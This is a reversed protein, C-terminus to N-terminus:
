RLGLDLLPALRDLPLGPHFCRLEFLMTDDVVRPRCSYARFDGPSFASSPPQGGFLERFRAGADTPAPALSDLLHATRPDGWRILADRISVEPDPAVPVHGARLLPHRQPTALEIQRAAYLLRWFYDAVLERDAPGPIAPHITANTSTFSAYGLEAASGALCAPLDRPSGVLANTDDPDLLLEALSTAVAGDWSVFRDCRVSYAATCEIRDFRSSEGLRAAARALWDDVLAFDAVLELWGDRVVPPSAIEVLCRAYEPALRWGARRMAQWRQRRADDAAVHADFSAMLRDGALLCGVTGATWAYLAYERELGIELQDRRVASV